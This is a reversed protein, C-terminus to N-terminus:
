PTLLDFARRMDTPTTDMRDRLSLKPRYVAILFFGLRDMPAHVEDRGVGAVELDVGLTVDDWCALTPQTAGGALRDVCVGSGARPM